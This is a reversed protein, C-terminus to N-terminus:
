SQGSAAPDAHTASAVVAKPLSLGADTGRKVAHLIGWIGLIAGATDAGPVLYAQAWQDAAQVYGIWDAPHVGCVAGALVAADCLKAFATDLFRFGEGVVFLCASLGRKRGPVATFWGFFATIKALMEKGLGKRLAARELGDKLSM